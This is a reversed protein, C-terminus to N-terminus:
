KIWDQAWEAMQLNDQSMETTIYVCNQGGINMHQIGHQTELHQLLRPKTEFKSPCDSVHCAFTHPQLQHVKLTKMESFIERGGLLPRSLPSGGQSSYCAAFTSKASEECPRVSTEGDM